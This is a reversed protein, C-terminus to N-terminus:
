LSSKTTFSVSIFCASSAGFCCIRLYAAPLLDRCLCFVQTKCAARLAQLCLVGSNEVRHVSSPPGGASPCSSLTKQLVTNSRSLDRLEQTTDQTRDPEVCTRSSRKRWCASSHPKELTAMVGTRQDTARLKTDVHPQLVFEVTRVRFAARQNRPVQTRWETGEAAVVGVGPDHEEVNYLLNVAWCLIAWILPPKLVM